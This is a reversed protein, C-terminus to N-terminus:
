ELLNATTNFKRMANKYATEFAEKTTLEYQQFIAQAMYHNDNTVVAVNNGINIVKIFTTPNIFYAYESDGRQLYLPFLIEKLDAAKNYICKKQKASSIHPFALSCDECNETTGVSDCICYLM